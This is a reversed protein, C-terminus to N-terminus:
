APQATGQLIVQGHQSADGPQETSIQMIKFKAPDAASWMNLTGNSTIFTGATILQLNGPRNGPGAYWCEYFQGPELKPLHKVTLEIAWGPELSMVLPDDFYATHRLAAGPAHSHQRACISTCRPPPRLWIANQARCPSRLPVNLKQVNLHSTPVPAPRLPAIHIRDAPAGTKTGIWIVAGASPGRNAGPAVTVKVALTLSTSSVSRAANTVQVDLTSPTSPVPVGSLTVSWEPV